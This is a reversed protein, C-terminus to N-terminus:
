EQSNLQLVSASTGEEGMLHVTWPKGGKRSAPLHGLCSNEGRELALCHGNEIIKALIGDKQVKIFFETFYRNKLPKIFFEIFDWIWLRNQFVLAARILVTGGFPSTQLQWRAINFLLKRFWMSHEQCSAIKKTGISKAEKVQLTRGREVDARSAGGAQPQLDM